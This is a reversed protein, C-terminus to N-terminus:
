MRLSRGGDVALIQGTVYPADLVFFKVAEAIDKAHGSCKLLTREVLDKQEECSLANQGTPWVIAGPSVGNVRVLPAFEKALAQTLMTLGAKTISYVSYDRLPRQAHIDIINVICGEQKQLYPFAAQSLFFPAKLNCDFLQAWQSEDVEGIFTKYFMSANNILIDLRGWASVAQKIISSIQQHQTLDGQVVIASDQRLANLEAALQLADEKSYHCHIVVNSDRAHLERVIAAGIRVAAGTVLAVKVINKNQSIIM